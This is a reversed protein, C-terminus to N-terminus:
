TALLRLLTTKGSGNPGILGTVGPEFAVDVGDLGVKGGSYVKRLGHLQLRVGHTRWLPAAHKARNRIRTEPVDCFVDRQLFGDAERPPSAGAARPFRRQWSHLRLGLLPLKM